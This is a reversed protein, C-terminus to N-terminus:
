WCCAHMYLPRTYCPPFITVTHAYYPLLILCFTLILLAKYMEREKERNFTQRDSESYRERDRERESKKEREMESDREKARERNTVRNTERNRAMERTFAFILVDGTMFVTLM